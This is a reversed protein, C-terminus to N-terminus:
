ASGEFTLLLQHLFPIVFTIIHFISLICIFRNHLFFYLPLSFLSKLGFKHFRFFDRDYHFFFVKQMPPIPAFSFEEVLNYYVFTHIYSFCYPLFSHCLALLGSAIIVTKYQIICLRSLNFYYNHPFESLHNRKKGFFFFLSSIMLILLGVTSNYNM